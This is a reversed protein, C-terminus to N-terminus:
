HPFSVIILVSTSILATIRELPLKRFLSIKNYKRRGSAGGRGRGGAFKNSGDRFRREGRDRETDINEARGTVITYM